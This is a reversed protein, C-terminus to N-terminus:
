NLFGKKYIESHFPGCKIQQINKIVFFAYLSLNWGSHTKNTFSRLCEMRIMEVMDRTKIIIFYIHTLVSKLLTLHQQFTDTQLKKCM